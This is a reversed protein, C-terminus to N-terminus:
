LSSGYDTRGGYSAVASWCPRAKSSAWRKCEAGVGSLLRQGRNAIINPPNQPRLLLYTYHAQVQLTKKRRLCVYLPSAKM